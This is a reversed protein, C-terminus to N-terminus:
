FNFRWIFKEFNEGLKLVVTRRSPNVFCRTLKKALFLSTELSVKIELSKRQEFKM